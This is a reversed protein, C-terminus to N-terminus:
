LFVFDESDKKNAKSTAPKLSLHSSVNLSQQQPSAALDEFDVIHHSDHSHGEVVVFMSYINDSESNPSAM